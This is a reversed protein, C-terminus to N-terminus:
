WARRPRDPTAPPRAPRTAVARPAVHPRRSRSCPRPPSRHCSRRPRCAPPTPRRALLSRVWVPWQSLRPMISVGTRPGRDHRPQKRLGPEPRRCSGRSSDTCRVLRPRSTRIAPRGSDPRHISACIARLSPDRPDISARFPSSGRDRGRIAVGAGRGFRGANSGHPERVSRMRQLHVRGLAGLRISIRTCGRARARSRGFRVGGDMPGSGGHELRPPRSRRWANGSKAAM